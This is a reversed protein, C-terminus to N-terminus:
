QRSVALSQQQPGTDGSPMDSSRVHSAPRSDTAVSVRRSPSSITESRLVPQKAGAANKRHRMLAACLTSRKIPYGSASIQRAIETYTAGREQAARINGSIRSVLLELERRSTPQLPLVDLDAGIKAILEDSLM